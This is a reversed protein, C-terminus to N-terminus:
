VLKRNFKEYIETLSREFRKVTELKLQKSLLHYFETHFM